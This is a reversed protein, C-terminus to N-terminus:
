IGYIFGLQYGISKLDSFIFNLKDNIKQGFWEMQGTQIRLPSQCCGCALTPALFKYFTKTLAWMTYTLGLM